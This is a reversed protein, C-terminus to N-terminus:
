TAAPDYAYYTNGKEISWRNTLRNDADYKYRLIETGAQDLKNTARGYEDYNWRTTQNKVDTLSLLDGSPSNTYRLVEANANTEFTKRGAEDYAYSTILNIQNTHAILGRASYGFKEVGGDPYTRTQVRNL